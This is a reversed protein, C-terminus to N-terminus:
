KIIRKRGEIVLDSIDSTTWSASTSLTLLFGAILIAPVFKGALQQAIRCM